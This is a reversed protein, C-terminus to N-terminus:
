KERPNVLAGDASFAPRGKWRVGHLFRPIPLLEAFTQLLHHTLLASELVVSLMLM